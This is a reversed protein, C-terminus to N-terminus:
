WFKWWPKVMMKDSTKEPFIDIVPTFDHKDVPIMNFSQEKKDLKLTKGGFDIKYNDNLQNVIHVYDFETDNEPLYVM